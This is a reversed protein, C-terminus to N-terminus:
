CIFVANLNRQILLAETRVRETRIRRSSLVLSQVYVHTPTLSAVMYSLEIREVPSPEHLLKNRIMQSTRTLSM